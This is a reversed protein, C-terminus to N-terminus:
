IDPIVNSDNPSQNNSHCHCTLLMFRVWKFAGPIQTYPSPHPCWSLSWWTFLYLLLGVIVQLPIHWTYTGYPLNSNTCSMVIVDARHQGPSNRGRQTGYPLNSNARSMVIVDASSCTEYLYLEDDCLHRYLCWYTFHFNCALLYNSKQLLYVSGCSTFFGRYWHIWSISRQSEFILFNYSLM